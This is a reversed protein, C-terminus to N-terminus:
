SSWQPSQAVREDERPRKGEAASEVTWPDLWGMVPQSGAGARSKFARLQYPM